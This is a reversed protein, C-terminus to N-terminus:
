GLAELIRTLSQSFSLGCLICILTDQDFIRLRM